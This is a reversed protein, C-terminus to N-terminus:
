TLLALLQKRRGQAWLSKKAESIFPAGSRGRISTGSAPKILNGEEDPELNNIVKRRGSVVELDEPGLEAVNAAGQVVDFTRGKEDVYTSTTLGKPQVVFGEGSWDALTTPLTKSVDELANQAFNQAGAIRNNIRSLQQEGQDWRDVLSELEAQVEDLRGASRMRSGPSQAMSYQLINEEERLQNMRQKLASRENNIRVVDQQAELRKDGLWDKISNQDNQYRDEAAVATDQNIVPRRFATERDDSMLDAVNLEFDNGALSITQKDPDSLFGPDTLGLELSHKQKTFEPGYEWGGPGMRNALEQEIRRPTPPLGQEGLQSAIEDRQSALFAATNSLDVDENRQVKRTMRSVEQNIGSDVAIQQQKMVPATSQQQIDVLDPAQSPPVTSERGRAVVQEIDRSLDVQRVGANASRNTSKPVQAGRGLMRRIGYAGAGLGALGLGIGIGMSLADSGQSQPEAPTKSSIVVSILSKLPSKRGNKRRNPTLPVQPAAIPTSIRPLFRWKNTIM